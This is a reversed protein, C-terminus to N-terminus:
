SSSRSCSRRRRVASGSTRSCASGASSAAERAVAVMRFIRFLRLLPVVSLLDAWGWRRFMYRHRSPATLLRYLFDFLFIPTIAIEILIATEGAVSTVGALVVVIFNAVALLSLLFLFLEYGTGKAGLPSRPGHTEGAAPLRNDSAAVM